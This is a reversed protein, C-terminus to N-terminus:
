EKSKKQPMPGVSKWRKQLDQLAPLTPAEAAALAEAEKILGEARPVNAWRQWDEAERLEQAKIVLKARAAGYRKELPAREEPAVKSIGELAKGAQDLLRQVARQDTSDAMGELDACLAELSAAIQKGREFAEKKRAEREASEQA